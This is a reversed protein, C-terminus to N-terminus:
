LVYLWTIDQRWLKARAMGMDSVSRKRGEWGGKLPAGWTLNEKTGRVPIVQKRQKYKKCCKDVSHM